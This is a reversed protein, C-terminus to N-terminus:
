SEIDGFNPQAQYLYTSIAFVVLLVGFALTYAEDYISSLAFLTPGILGGLYVLIMSAATFHYVSNPQSEARAYQAIEAFLVGSFSMPIFGLFVCFVYLQLVSMAEPTIILFVCSVSASVLLINIVFRSSVRDAVYGWFIRGLGSATMVCFFLEGAFVPSVQFKSWLYLVLSAMLGYQYSAFCFVALAVRRGQWNKFFIRVPFFLSNQLSDIASDSKVQISHGNLREISYSCVALLLASISLVVIANDWSYADAVRPLILGSFGAGIAVSTQKVSFLLNENKALNLATIAQSGIPVALAYSVGMTLAMFILGGASRWAVVASLSVALLISLLSIMKFISKGAGFKSLCISSALASCVVLSVFIEVYPALNSSYKIVWPALVPIAQMSGIVLAHLFLAFWFALWQSKLVSKRRLSYDSM